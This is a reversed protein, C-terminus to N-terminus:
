VSADQTGQMECGRRWAGVAPKIDPSIERPGFPNWNPTWEAEGYHGRSALSFTTLRQTSARAQEWILLM